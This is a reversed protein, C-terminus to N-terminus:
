ATADVRATSGRVTLEPKVLIHDRASHGHAFRDLLLRAAASGLEDAPFTITTLPPTALEGSMEGLM